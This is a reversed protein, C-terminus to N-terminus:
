EFDETYKRLVASIEERLFGKRALADSIRSAERRDAPLSKVRSLIYQEIMGSASPMSEMAQEIYDEDVGRLRLERRIRLEGYGRASRSRVFQYAYELDDIARMQEMSDAAFQVDDPDYGKESLRETLQRRTMMRAGLMRAAENLANKRGQTIDTKMKSITLRM